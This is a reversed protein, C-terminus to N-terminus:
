FGDGRRKMEVMDRLIGVANKVHVDSPLRGQWKKQSLSSDTGVKSVAILVHHESDEIEAEHFARASSSIATPWNRAETGYCKRIKEGLQKRVVKMHNYDSNQSGSFGNPAGAKSMTPRVYDIYIESPFNAAYCMAATGGRRFKAAELILPAGANEDSAELAKDALELHASCFM